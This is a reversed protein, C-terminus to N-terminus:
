PLEHHASLVSLRQHNFVTAAAGLGALDHKRRSNRDLITDCELHLLGQRLLAQQGAARTRHGHVVVHVGAERLASAGAATFPYDRDRYKTQFANGLAGNFARVPDDEMLRRHEANVAAIGDDRLLRSIDDDVGAHVFLLSEARYALVMRDVLWGYEGGPGFLDRCTSVAAHAVSLPMNAAGLYRRIKDTKYAVRDLERAIYKPALIGAAAEAFGDYWSQSPFLIQAAEDEGLLSVDTGALHTQWVEQLLTVVKGGMRVFLHGRAACQADFHRAGLLIKVDHNGALLVVDAADVLRRLVRLLRLTSPGKDFYDGGLVFRCARGRETLEFGDSDSNRVNAGALQLSALLADADAHPDTIFVHEREPLAIAHDRAYNRILDTPWDAPVGQHRRTVALM